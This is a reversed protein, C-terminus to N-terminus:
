NHIRWFPSFKDAESDDTIEMYIYVYIYSVHIARIVITVQNEGNDEQM